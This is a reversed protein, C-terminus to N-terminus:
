IPAPAFHTMRGADREPIITTITSGGAIVFTQIQAGEGRTLM